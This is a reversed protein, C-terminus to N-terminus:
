LFIQTILGVRKISDIGMLRMVCVGISVRNTYTHSQPKYLLTRLDAGRAHSISTIVFYIRKGMKKYKKRVYWLFIFVEAEEKEDKDQRTM